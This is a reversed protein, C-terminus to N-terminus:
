VVYGAVQCQSREFFAQPRPHRAIVYIPIKAIASQLCMGVIREYLADFLARAPPAGRRPWRRVSSIRVGGRDYAKLIRTSEACLAINIEPKSEITIVPELRELFMSGAAGALETRAPRVTAAAFM